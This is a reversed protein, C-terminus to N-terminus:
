GLDPSLLDDDNWRTQLHQAIRSAIEEATLGKMDGFETSALEDSVWNIKNNIFQMSAELAKRDGAEWYGGEDSVELDAMYRKKLHKLLGIIWIHLDPTAFQTKISEWSKDTVPQGECRMIVDMYSRLCGHADFLFSLSESNDGPHLTIGKLGLHGKITAVGNRHELRATPPELWSDDLASTEWGMSKGIDALERRLQVISGPDDLTGRYHITVGM